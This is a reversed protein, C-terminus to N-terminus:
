KENKRKKFKLALVTGTVWAIISLIIIWGHKINQWVSRESMLKIHNDFKPTGYGIFWFPDYDDSSQMQTKTAMNETISKGLQQHQFYDMHQKIIEFDTICGYIFLLFYAGIISYFM